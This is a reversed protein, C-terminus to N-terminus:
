SFFKQYIIGGIFAILTMEFTVKSIIPLRQSGELKKLNKIITYSGWGVAIGLIISMAIIIKINNYISSEELWLGFCTFIGFFLISAITFVILKIVENIFKNNM